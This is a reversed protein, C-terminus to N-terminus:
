TNTLRKYSITLTQLHKTLFKIGISDTGLHVFQTPKTDDHFGNEEQYNCSSFLLSSSVFLSTIAVACLFSIFFFLDCGDTSPHLGTLQVHMRNGNKERNEWWCTKGLKESLHLVHAGVVRNGRLQHV